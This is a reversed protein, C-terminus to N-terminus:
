RVITSQSPSFEAAVGRLKAGDLAPIRHGGVSMLSEGNLEAQLKKETPYTQTVAM